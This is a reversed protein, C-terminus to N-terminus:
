RQHLTVLDSIPISGDLIGSTREGEDGLTHRRAFAFAYANIIHFGEDSPVETCGGLAFLQHCGGEIDVWDMDVESAAEWAGEVAGADASGSLQLMPLDVANLGQDGFWNEDGRGAMPIGGVLRPDMAGDEFAALVEDTCTGEPFEDAACREQIRAVDFEAGSSAWVTHGGFSHGALVVARTDTPGALADLEGSVADIAASVDFSRTIWLSLPRPSVHTIFTNGIHDPAVAVWGHSAARRMLFSSSGGFGQNGHSYALVPYGAEHVPLSPAADVQSEEDTFIQEYIAATGGTESSPYWVHIPITRQEDLGPSSYTVEWSTYGVEFPGPEDVPWSLPDPPPEPEPGCGIVLLLGLTLVRSSLSM